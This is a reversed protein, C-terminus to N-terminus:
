KFAEILDKPVIDKHMQKSCMQLFENFEITNFTQDESVEKVMELLEVMKPRQGMAQMVQELEQFTLM